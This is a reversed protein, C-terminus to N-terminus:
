QWSPHFNKKTPRLTLGAMYIVKSLVFSFYIVLTNICLGKRVHKLYRRNNEYYNKMLLCIYDFKYFMHLQYLSETKWHKYFLFLFCSLKEQREYEVLEIYPMERIIREFCLMTALVEIHKFVREERPMTNM